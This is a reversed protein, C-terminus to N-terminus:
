VPSTGFYRSQALPGTSKYGLPSPSPDHAKPQPMIFNVQDGMLSQLVTTM